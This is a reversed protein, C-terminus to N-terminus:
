EKGRRARMPKPRWCLISVLKRMQERRLFHISDSSVIHGTRTAWAGIYGWLISVSAILAPRERLRFVCRALLFVPHYGLRYYGAGRKFRTRIVDVVGRERHHFVKLMPYTRVKWGLRRAEIEAASDICGTNIERYGGIERYCETRFFQVAGAVSDLSINQGVYRDKVLDYIQGGAIGLYPDAEVRRVLEEFYHRSMSVDADLIGIYNYDCDVMAVDIGKAIARSKSGFSRVDGKKELTVLKIWPIIKSHQYIIERTNDSSGDDVIVWRLPLLSQNAVATILRGIHKEENHASTVLCYMQHLRYTGLPGEDPEGIIATM